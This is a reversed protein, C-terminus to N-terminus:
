QKQIIRERMNKRNMAQVLTAEADERAMSRTWLRRENRKIVMIFDDTVARAKGETYILSSHFPQTSNGELKTLVDDWCTIDDISYESNKKSKEQVSFIVAIMSDTQEPQYVQWGFEAGENLYPNWSQIFVKLYESFDTNKSLSEMTGYPKSLHKTLVRKGAMSKDPSYYYPLTVECMERILDIEADNLEYLEYIAQDLRKEFEKLENNSFVPQYKEAQFINCVNPPIFSQLKDVISIINDKLKKSKPLKIPLDFVQGCLLKDRWVGWNSSTLFWYYRALSSWCIGLLCKYTELSCDVLKLAFFSDNFSYSRDELWAIIMGKPESSQDITEKFILRLGHYTEEKGRTKVKRPPNELATNKLNLRGYRRIYRDLYYHPLTKYRMLWESDIVTGRTYGDGYFDRRSLSLM